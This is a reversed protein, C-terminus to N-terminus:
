RHSLPPMWLREPFPAARRSHKRLRPAEAVKDEVVRLRMGCKPCRKRRTSTVEPHMPCAYRVPARQSKQSTQATIRDSNWGVAPVLLLFATALIRTFM